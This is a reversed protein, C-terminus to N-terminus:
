STKLMVFSVAWSFVGFPILLMLIIEFVTLKRERKAKKLTRYFLFSCFLLILHSLESLDEFFASM